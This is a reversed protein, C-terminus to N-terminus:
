DGHEPLRPDEVPELGMARLMRRATGEDLPLPGGGCAVAGVVFGDSKAVLGGQLTTLRPDGWQM